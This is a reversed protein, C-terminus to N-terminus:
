AIKLRKLAWKQPRGTLKFAWKQPSKQVLSFQHEALRMSVLHILSMFHTQSLTAQAMPKCLMTISLDIKVFGNNHAM